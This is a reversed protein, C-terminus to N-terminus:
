REQTGEIIEKYKYEMKYETRIISREEEKELRKKEKKEKQM